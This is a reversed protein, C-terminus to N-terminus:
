KTTTARPRAEAFSRRLEGLSPQASRLRGVGAGRRGSESHESAPGCASGGAGLSGTVEYPGIRAGITLPM